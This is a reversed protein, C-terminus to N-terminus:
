NAIGSVEDIAPSTASLSDRRLMVLRTKYMVFPVQKSGLSGWLDNIQEFNLTHIDLVLKMESIQPDSAFGANPSNAQTFVYKGQFFEIVQSLRRLATTYNDFSCSFLLYLNLNIPPNIYETQSGNKIFTPTNKLRKEEEINVLSLVVKELAGNNTNGSSEALAINGLEVVDPRNASDLDVSNIYDNLERVLITLAKSIM